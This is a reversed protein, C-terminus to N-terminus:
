DIENIQLMMALNFYMSIERQNLYDNVIGANNVFVDFEDCTM